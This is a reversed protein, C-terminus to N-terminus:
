MHSSLAEGAEATGVAVNLVGTPIGAKVALEAPSCPELPNMESAKIVM